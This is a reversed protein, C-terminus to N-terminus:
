RSTAPLPLSPGFSARAEQEVSIFEDPQSRLLHLGQDCQARADCGMELSYWDGGSASIYRVHQKSIQAARAALAEPALGKTKEGAKVLLRIELVPKAPEAPKPAPTPKHTCAQLSAVISAFAVWYPLTLITNKM